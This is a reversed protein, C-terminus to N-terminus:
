SHKIVLELALVPANPNMRVSKMMAGLTTDGEGWREPCGNMKVDLNFNNGNRRNNSNIVQSMLTDYDMRVNTIPHFIGGVIVDFSIPVSYGSVLLALDHPMSTVTRINIALQDRCSTLWEHDPPTPISATLIKRKRRKEQLAPSPGAYRKAM